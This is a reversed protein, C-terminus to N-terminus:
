GKRFKYHRYTLGKGILGHGTRGEVEEVAGDVKEHEARERPLRHVAVADGLEHLLAGVAGNCELAGREVLGEVAQFFALQDARPPADGFGTPAGLEVLEGGGSTGGEFRLGAVQARVHRREVAHEVHAYDRGHSADDAEQPRGREAARIRVSM